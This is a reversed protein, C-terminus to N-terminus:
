FNIVLRVGPVVATKASQLVPRIIQVDGTLWIGPTISFNYFTEFIHENGIKLLPELASRLKQSAGTFGYAIGFRDRKRNKFLGNGGVGFTMFRSVPNTTKDAITLVGFLGWGNKEGNQVPNERIYQHFTYTLSWSGSKPVIPKQPEGPLIVQALQDFPTFKRTTVTGSLSHRGTKGGFKSAFSVAPAFTLGQRFLRKVGPKTPSAIPDFVAFTVFPAGKRIWAFTAGNSVAPITQGVAPNGNANFNMFRDIGGGGTFPERSSDLSYYKGAGVAIFEGKEKNVPILQTFNLATVSFVAGAGKPSIIGANLPLVNGASPARGFRTETKLQVSLYKWGFLKKFDFRFNTDFKGSYAGGRGTGGAAVGQYSQTLRFKLDIGKERLKTRQDSWNGTIEQWSWFDKEPQSVTSEAPAKNQGFVPFALFFLLCLPAVTLKIDNKENKESKQPLAYVALPILACVTIWFFAFMWASEGDAVIIKVTAQTVFHLIAPAWITNGGMEFLRSFPFSMAVALLISAGALSWSLSYFLILHVVIFPLAAFAAAKWFTHKQRLHGFLYGRFLTEEAIGAQFFLGLVFTQWDPYFSFSVNMIAAFVPITLLLLLSIGVAALIGRTAPFGLGIAFFAEKFSKAFSLREACLTAAVIILGIVVGSQGRNSGLAAGLWQFLAFVVILGILLKLWQGRKM